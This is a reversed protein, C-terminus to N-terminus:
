RVIWGLTQRSNRLIPHLGIGADRLHSQCSPIRHKGRGSAEMLEGTASGMTPSGCGRGGFCGCTGTGMPLPPEPLAPPSPPCPRTQCPVPSPSLLHSVPVCGWLPHLNPNAKGGPCLRCLSPGPRDDSREPVGLSSCGQFSPGVPFEVEAQSGRGPLPEEWCSLPIHSIPHLKTRSPPVHLPGLDWTLALYQLPGLYPDWTGPQLEM